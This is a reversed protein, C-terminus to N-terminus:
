SQPRPRPRVYVMDARRFGLREYFRTSGIRADLTLKLGDRGAMLARMLKTGLGRDQWRPAVTVTSIYGNTAEDSIIRAFGVLQEGDFAAVTETSGMLMSRTLVNSERARGDLGAACFLRRLEDLDLAAAAAPGAMQRLELRDVRREALALRRDLEALHDLSHYLARRLLKALTWREGKGDTRALRPDRAHLERLWGLLFDRSAELYTDLEGDRPPGEYRATGELRSAFWIEAAALHRIVEDAERGASAGSALAEAARDEPPLRGGSREFEELRARLDLLDRRAYGLRDIQRDLEDATVPRSDAAFIANVEYGGDLRYAAVEEVVEWVASEPRTAAEGHAALWDVFGHVASPIRALASEREAGWCFAGPWDVM